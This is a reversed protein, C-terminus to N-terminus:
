NPSVQGGVHAGAQQNQSRLRFAIVALILGYVVLWLGLIMTVTLLSIGPYFLVLVGVIISLIASAALWGRAPMARDSVSLFLDFVGHLIWFIGLLVALILISLVPHRLLYVGAIFAIAALVASVVNHWGRQGSSAVADVFRYVALVILQVGFLVAVVVLTAGPYIITALGVLVSVVGMALVWGWARGIRALWEPHGDEIVNSM